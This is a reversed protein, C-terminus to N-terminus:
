DLAQRRGGDRRVAARPLCRSCTSACRPAATRAASCRARGARHLRRGLVCRRSSTSAGFGGACFPLQTVAYSCCATSCSRARADRGRRPRGAADPGRGERVRGEDAAVAGLLAAADLLLRDRVPLARGSRALRDVAAWGVLPPVAGAAGGSVINQPTRRKLWCRTSSCTASSARRALPVGGAPQRTAVARRVVARRARARVDAGRAALHPRRRRAPRPARCARRRHRPRVLPQGRRRRRRVPLRRAADRPDAGLSPDGAVFM